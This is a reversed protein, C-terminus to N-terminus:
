GEDELDPATAPVMTLAVTEGDDATERVVVEHIKQMQVTTRANLTARLPVYVGPVMQDITFGPSLRVSTGDPLRVEVPVPNRGSLNRQAQSNLDAQTPIDTSTEDYVTFIKVWPGYYDDNAGAGGFADDAGTTLAVVCHDTGYSSVVPSGIFDAETMTKTTSLPHSVDWIIISRGIVTYDIGGTRALNDLHAGVSMQAKATLAATGAENPFHRVDLFPLVNIPPDIQEWGPLTVTAGATNKFTFSNALEYEIIAEIRGTATTNHPYSNDWVKSLPRFNLYEVVDKASVEVYDDHWGVLSIPGEWVREQGRFIVLEHRHPEISRLLDAQPACADGQIRLSAESVTDRIRSWQVISLDQLKGGPIRKTGGRDMIYATHGQVCSDVWRGAAM